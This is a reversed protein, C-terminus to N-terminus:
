AARVLQEQPSRVEVRVEYGREADATVSTGAGSNEMRAHRGKAAPPVVGPRRGSVSLRDHVLQWFEPEDENRAANTAPPLVPLSAPAPQGAEPNAVGGNTREAHEPSRLETRVAVEPGALFGLASAIGALATTFYASPDKRAFPVYLISYAATLVGFLAGLAAVVAERRLLAAAQVASTWPPVHLVAHASLVVGATLAAGSAPFWKL